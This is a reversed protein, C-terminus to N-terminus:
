AVVDREIKTVRLRMEERPEELELAAASPAPRPSRPKRSGAAGGRGRYVLLGNVPDPVADLAGVVAPLARFATWQDDTAFCVEFVVGYQSESWDWYMAGSTAAAETLADEYSYRWASAPLKDGSFVEISFWEAMTCTVAKGRPAVPSSM